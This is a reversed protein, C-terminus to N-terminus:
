LSLSLVLGYGQGPMAVPVVVMRERFNKRMRPGCRYRSSRHRVIFRAIYIGMGAGLVVDSIYHQRQYVLAASVYTGGLVAFAYLPWHGYYDALVFLMSWATIAHGSPTGGPFHLRTPGYTRPEDGDDVQYPSQRGILMKSAVHWFQVQGITELALTAYEFLKDNKTFWATSFLVAGYTALFASEPITKIKLFFKELGPREHRKIWRHARLDYSPEAPWMLATTPIAFAGARAWDGDDWAVVSAPLAAFDHFFRPVVRMNPYRTSDSQLPGECSVEEVEQARVPASLSCLCALVSLLGLVRLM